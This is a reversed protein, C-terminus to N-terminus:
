VNEPSCLCSGMKSETLLHPLAERFDASLFIGLRARQKKALILLIGFQPM